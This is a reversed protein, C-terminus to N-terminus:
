HLLHMPRNSQITFSPAMSYLQQWFHVSWFFPQLDICLHDGFSFLGWGDDWLFAKLFTLLLLLLQCFMLITALTGHRLLESFWRDVDGRRPISAQFALSRVNSWSGYQLRMERRVVNGNYDRLGARAKLRALDYGRHWRRGGSLWKIDKVMRVKRKRRQWQWKPQRWQDKACRGRSWRWKSGLQQGQQFDLDEMWLKICSIRSKTMFMFLDLLLSIAELLFMTLHLFSKIPLPHCIQLKYLWKLRM